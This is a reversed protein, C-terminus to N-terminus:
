NHVTKVICATNLPNSKDLKVLEGNKKGCDKKAQQVAIDMSTRGSGVNKFVIATSVIMFTVCALIIALVLYLSYYKKELLQMACRKLSM